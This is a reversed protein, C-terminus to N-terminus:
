HFYLRFSNFWNIDQKPWVSNNLLSNAGFYNNSLYNAWTETWFTNHRWGLVGDMTASALSEKAIIEYFSKLGVKRAQLIHGFEHHVLPMDSAKSFAGEYVIIGRGPLTIGGPIDSEYMKVGEFKGVYKGTVTKEGIPTGSAGFANSLDLETKATWFNAGAKAASIGSIVGNIIGGSLAGIGAAAFGAELGDSFGAENAWANGTGLILGSSGGSAAGVAAGAWFGQTGLAAGVASGAWAGAGGALAGIAAYKFADGANNINGAMDQTVYNMFAGVTAGIIIPAWIFEGSPDTYLLPNNRCYSYRNFDQTFTNSAVYPDPSFFRGIVPDYLRGNMNIIEFDDLHEHGTFGRNFLRTTTVDKVQWNNATRRNGWADFSYIQVIQGLQNVVRDYSGLHDKFIYYISDTSVGQNNDKLEVITHGTSTSIYNLERVRGNPYVECEYNGIYYTTKQIVNNLKYVTKIREQASNYYFQIEKTGKTIKDIKNYSNYTTVLPETSITNFFPPGLPDFSTNNIGSIANPKNDSNYSYTGVDSKSKINGQNDYSINNFRDNYFQGGNLKRISTLRNLNDYSFSEKQNYISDKRSSMLGKTNYEYVWKQINSGVSVPYLILSNYRNFDTQNNM